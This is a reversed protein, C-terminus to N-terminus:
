PGGLRARRRDLLPVAASASRVVAAGPGGPRGDSGGSPRTRTGDPVRGRRWPPCACERVRFQPTGGCVGGVQGKRRYPSVSVDGGVTRFHYGHGGWCGSGWGRGVKAADDGRAEDPGRHLPVVEEEVAGSGRQHEVLQEEGPGVREDAGKEGEEGIGHSEGCAGDPGQHEPM